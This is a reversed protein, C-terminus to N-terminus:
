RRSAATGYARRSPARVVDVAVRRGDSAAHYACGAGHVAIGRADVALCTHEDIAWGEAVLGGAVAHVLRTLTGWATAHADV